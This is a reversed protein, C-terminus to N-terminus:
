ASYPIQRFVIKYVFTMPSRDGPEPPTPPYILSYLVTTTVQSSKPSAAHQRTLPLPLAQLFYYLTYSDIPMQEQAVKTYLM